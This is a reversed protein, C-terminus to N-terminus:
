GIPTLDPAHRPPFFLHAGVAKAKIVARVAMSKRSGLSDMVVIDGPGLRQCWDRGLGLGSCRRM